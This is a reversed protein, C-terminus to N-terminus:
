SEKEDKGGKQVWFWDILLLLGVCALTTVFCLFTIASESM